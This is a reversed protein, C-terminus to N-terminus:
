GGRWGQGQAGCCAAHADMSMIHMCVHPLPSASSSMVRIPEWVDGDVFGAPVLVGVVALARVCWAECWGREEETVPRDDLYTLQSCAAIVAKRYSAVKSVMPNGKLYLCRLAPLRAIIGELVAEDEIENGQLDLTHLEMCSLLPELAALTSLQNREAILTALHPTAALQQLSTLSNSAANLTNLNPASELGDLSRLCNQQM